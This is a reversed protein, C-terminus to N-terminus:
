STLLLPDAQRPRHVRVGVDHQQVVDEASDVGVHALVDEVPTDSLHTSHSASKM